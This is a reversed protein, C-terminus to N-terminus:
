LFEARIQAVRPCKFTYIKTKYLGGAIADRKLAWRQGPHDWAARKISKAETPLPPNQRPGAAWTVRRPTWPDRTPEKGEKAQEPEAPTMASAKTRAMNRKDGAHDRKWGRAVAQSTMMGSLDM